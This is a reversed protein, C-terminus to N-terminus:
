ANRSAGGWNRFITWWTSILSGSAATARSATSATTALVVQHLETDAKKIVLVDRKCIPCLRNHRLLWPDICATHFQHHCPLERARSGVVFEDICIACCKRTGGTATSRKKVVISDAVVVEQEDDEDILDYEDIVRVPLTIQEVEEEDKGIRSGMVGEELPVEEEGGGRQQTGWFHGNGLFSPALVLVFLHGYVFWNRLMMVFLCVATCIGFFVIFVGVGFCVNGLFALITFVRRRLKLGGAGSSGWGEVPWDDLHLSVILPSGIIGGNTHSKIPPEDYLSDLVHPPLTNSRDLAASVLQDGDHQTVFMARIDNVQGVLKNPSMRVPVDVGGSNKAVRNHILIGGFGALEANLIKVDFPCNGRAVMAYWVTGEGEGAGSQMAKTKVQSHAAADVSRDLSDFKMFATGWEVVTDLVGALVGEREEEEKRGKAVYKRTNVPLDRVWEKHDPFSVDFPHCADLDLVLLPSVAFHKNIPKGFLAPVALISPDKTEAQEVEYTQSYTGTKWYSGSKWPSEKRQKFPSSLNQPTPDGYVTLDPIVTINVTSDLSVGNVIQVRPSTFLIFSLVIFCSYLLRIVTLLTSEPPYENDLQLKDSTQTRLITLDGTDQNEIEM